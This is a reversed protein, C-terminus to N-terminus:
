CVMEKMAQLEVVPFTVLRSTGDSVNFVQRGPFVVPLQRKVTEFGTMFRDYHQPTSRDIVVDHWHTKGDERAKMDMGLLFIRSAGLILALNVAMAGTNWNWGLSDKFLGQQQRKYIKLWAPARPVGFNTVVWGEFKELDRQFKSWFKIDGFACINIADAGLM